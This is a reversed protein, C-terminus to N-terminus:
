RRRGGPALLVHLAGDGGDAAPAAAFARVHAALRGVLLDPVAHRLVAGAASHRGKGTVVRVCRQGAARAGALFRELAAAAEDERRGHLDLTAEPRPRGRELAALERDDVDAARAVALEPAERRLRGVPAVPAPRGAEAPPRVRGRDALPRADAVEARFLAEDGEAADGIRGAMGSM